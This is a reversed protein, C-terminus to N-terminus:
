RLDLDDLQTIPEAAPLRDEGDRTEVTFVQVRWYALTPKRIKLVDGAVVMVIEEPGDDQFREVAEQMFTQATENLFYFSVRRMLTKTIM